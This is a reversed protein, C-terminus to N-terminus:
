LNEMLAQHRSMGPVNRGGPRGHVAGAAVAAARAAMRARNGQRPQLREAAAEQPPRVPQPGARQARYVSGADAGLGPERWAAAIGLFVSVTLARLQHQTLHSPLCRRRLAPM